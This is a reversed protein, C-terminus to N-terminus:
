EASQSQSNSSEEETTEETGHSGSMSDSGLTFGVFNHALVFGLVKFLHPYEGAFHSDFVKKVAGASGTPRLEACKLNECLDKLLPIDEALGYALQVAAPFIQPKAQLVFNPANEALSKAKLGVLARLGHEGLVKTTRAMLRVGKSANFKSSTYAV